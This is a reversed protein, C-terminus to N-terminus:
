LKFFLRDRHHAIIIISFRHPKPICCNSNIIQNEDIRKWTESIVFHFMKILLEIYLLSKLLSEFFLFVKPTAQAQYHKTVFVIDSYKEKLFLFFQRDIWYFETVVFRDLLKSLFFTIWLITPPHLHQRNKHQLKPSM